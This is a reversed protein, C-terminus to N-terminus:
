GYLYFERSREKFATLDPQWSTEITEIAEFAEIQRRINTDGIILDIPLREYEYEYPPPKWQFRDGYLYRISRLLALSTRYPKYAKPDVVHIQFGRCLTGQWKNSTPEFATPRLFVGALEEKTMFDLLTETNLFPAGFIEFPRTTGRGESLNTGELLCMGPYVLATDLTPMNPSPM